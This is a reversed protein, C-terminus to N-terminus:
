KPPPIFEDYPNGDFLRALPVIDLEKTDTDSIATLITVYKGTSREQVRLVSLRGQRAAREITQLNHKDSDRLKSEDVPVFERSTIFEIAHKKYHYGYMEVIGHTSESVIALKNLRYSIFGHKSDGCVVGLLEGPAGYVPYGYLKASESTKLNIVKVVIRKSM